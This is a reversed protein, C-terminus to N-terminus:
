VVLGLEVELNLSVFALWTKVVIAMCFAICDVFSFGDITDLNTADVIFVYTGVGQDM